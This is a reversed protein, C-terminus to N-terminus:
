KVRRFKTVCHPVPVTKLRVSIASAPTFLPSLRLAEKPGASREVAPPFPGGGGPKAYTNM